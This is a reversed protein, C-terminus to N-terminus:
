IIKSTKHDAYIRQTGVFADKVKYLEKGTQQQLKLTKGVRAAADYLTGKGSIIEYTKDSDDSQDITLAYGANRSTDLDHVSYYSNLFDLSIEVGLVGYIEGDYKLPVSYTIMKHDDLYSDELIFPKAWYGLDVM